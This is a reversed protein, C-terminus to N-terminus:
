SHFFGQGRIQARTQARYSRQVLQQLVEAVADLAPVDPLLINQGDAIDLEIDGSGLIRQGIGRHTSVTRIRTFPVEIRHRTFVGWRSIVRHTTITIRRTLWQVLPGIVGFVFVVLAAVAVLLNQWLADFWGIFFGAAPALVFLVVVPLALHRGHLRVQAVIQEPGHLDLQESIQSASM